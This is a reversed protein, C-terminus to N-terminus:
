SYMEELSILCTWCNNCCSNSLSTPKLTRTIGALSNSARASNFPQDAKVQMMKLIIKCCLLTPLFEDSQNILRSFFKTDSSVFHTLLLNHRWYSSVALTIWIAQSCSYIGHTDERTVTSTYPRPHDGRSTARDLGRGAYRGHRSTVLQDNEIFNGTKNSM